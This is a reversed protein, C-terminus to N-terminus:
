QRPAPRVFTDVVWGIRGDELRYQRWRVGNVTTSEDTAALLTGPQLVAQAPYATGPGARFNVPGEADVQDTAVFAPRPTATPATPQPTPTPPPPTPTVTAPRSGTLGLVASSHTAPTPTSAGSPASPTAGGAPPAQLYGSDALIRGIPNPDPTPRVAVLSRYAGRNLAVVGGAVALWIALTAWAWHSPARWCRRRPVLASRPRDAFLEADYRARTEPDRLAAYAREVEARTPADPDRLRDDFLTLGFRLSRGHYAAEITAGDASPDIGLVEYYTRHPRQLRRPRQGAEDAVGATDGGAM